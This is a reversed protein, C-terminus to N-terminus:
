IGFPEKFFITASGQEVRAPKRVLFDGQIGVNFFALLLAGIRVLILM